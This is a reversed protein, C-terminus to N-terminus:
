RPTLKSLAKSIRLAVRHTGKQPLDCEWIRLVSWGQSRLLRTVLRDRQRNRDLKADWYRQSSQPRRYCHPCGHWFCGDVFIAVRAAPFIFDPTGPLDRAYMRWGRIGAAVLRARLSLETAKVRRNKVARMIASRTLRM